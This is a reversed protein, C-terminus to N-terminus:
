WLWKPLDSARFAALRNPFRLPSALSLMGHIMSSSEPQYIQSVARFDIPFVDEFPLKEMTMNTKLLTYGPFNVYQVQFDGM